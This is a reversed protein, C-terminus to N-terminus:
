GAPQHNSDMEPLTRGEGKPTPAKKTTTATPRNRRAFLEGPEIGFHAAITVIESATFETEDRLRRSLSMGTMGIARALDGQTSGAYAIEARVNAAVTLNGSNEREVPLHAINSM